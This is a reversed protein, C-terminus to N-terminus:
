GGGTNEKWSFTLGALNSGSTDAVFYVTEGVCAMVNPLSVMPSANITLSTTAFPRCTASISSNGPALRVYVTYSNATGISVNGSATSEDTTNVPSFSSGLATLGVSSPDSDYVQAATLTSSTSYYLQMAGLNADHDDVTVTFSEGVCVASLNAISNIDPCDSEVQILYDEVEGDSAAGTPDDVATLDTSFRFRAGLDSGVTADSPVTFSFNATQTVNSDDFDNSTPAYRENSNDLVGNNNWDFWAYLQADDMGSNNFVSISFSVNQGATFTTTSIPFGDEDDTGISNNDDGTSQDAGADASPQGDAEADVSAGIYINPDIIHSPGNDSLLTRYNGSASGDGVTSTSADPLDGLDRLVLRITDVDHDDEDGGELGNQEIEDNIQNANEGSTNGNEDDPTSDVDNGDDTSIEAFNLIQEVQINPNITFTLEISITDGTQIPGVDFTSDSAITQNSISFGIGNSSNGSNGEVASVFTLENPNYYDTIEISAANSTGQNYISLEFTYNSGPSVTPTMGSGPKKDLALDYGDFVGMDFTHNSFGPAGTNVPVTPYGSWSRSSNTEFEADSDNNEPITGNGTNPITLTYDTSGVNLLEGSTSFQDSADITGDTGFVVFYQTYPEVVADTTEWNEGSTGDGTFTYNGSGDTTTTAVLSGDDAFLAVNVGSLGLESPDQVGDKDVDIFVRNGIQLPPNGVYTLQIDGLGIAKGATAGRGGADRGFVQYNWTRSGNINSMGIIGGARYERVPDFVVTAVEGECPIMILSGGTIEQHTGANKNNSVRYMDQWYFEGGTPGQGPNQNAGGSTQVGNITNATGNQELKLVGNDRFLRIVDGGAVGEYVDTDGPLTSYNDNGIMWGFRDAIAVVISGDADFEIDSFVPMPYATQGFPGDGPLPMPAGIDTWEDIWPLWEGNFQNSRQKSLYGRQYDLDFSFVEKWNGVPGTPDHVYIYAILDETTGGNEGTCVGGIYVMGDHVEVAWARFVGNNCGPDPLPHRIIQSNQTPAIVPFGVEIELLERELLNMAWIVNYTEDLDLDGFSMKGVLDFATSDRNPDLADPPLYDAPIVSPYNGGDNNTRPDAGMNVGLDSLKVFVSPESENTLDMSYIASPGAVGFGSHRRMMASTFFERNGVQQVSVGWTTGVPNGDGLYTNIGQTVGNNKVPDYPIQVIFDSFETTGGALPDGTVYCPTIFVPDEGCYDEPVVFGANVNCNISPVFQVTTGSNAFATSYRPNTTPDFEVRYPGTPLNSDEISWEGSFNTYTS